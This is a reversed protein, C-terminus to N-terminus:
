EKGLKTTLEVSFMNEELSKESPPDPQWMKPPNKIEIIPPKGPKTDLLHQAEDYEWCDDCCCEPNHEREVKFRRRNRISSAFERAKEGWEQWAVLKSQLEAEKNM